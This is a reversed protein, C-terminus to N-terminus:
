FSNSFKAGIFSSSHPLLLGPLHQHKRRGGERNEGSGGGGRSETHTHTHTHTHTYTHTYPRLSTVKKKKAIGTDQPIKIGQGPISDPGKPTFTHPRSWQVM